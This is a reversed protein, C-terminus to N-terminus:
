PASSLSRLEMNSVHTSHRREVHFRIHNRVFASLRAAPDASPGRGAAPRPAATPAPAAPQALVQHAGLALLAALAVLARDRM